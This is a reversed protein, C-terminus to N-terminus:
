QNEVDRTFSLWDHYECSPKFNLSIGKKYEVIREKFFDIYKELDRKSKKYSKNAMITLIEEPYYQKRLEDLNKTKRVTKGKGVPILTPLGREPKQYQSCEIKKYCNNLDRTDNELKVKKDPNIIGLFFKNDKILIITERVKDDSLKGFTARDFMLKVKPTESIKPSVYNRVLNYLPLVSQLVNYHEGLIGQLNLDGGYEPSVNLPKLMNLLKMVTDLYDKIIKVDEEREKLPPTANGKEAIALIDPRMKKENQFIETVKEGKWFDTLRIPVMTEDDRIRCVNWERIEGFSYVVKKDYKERDKKKSFNREAYESAANRFAGRNGTICKSIQDLESSCVFLEDDDNLMSFVRHLSAFLDVEAGLIKVHENQLVFQKLAGCLEADNQFAFFRFVGERDSLIQKFLSALFPLEKPKIEKHAQRYQNVSYNIESIIGNIFDIGTQSLCNNYNGIKLIDALERGCRLEATRESINQLLDPYKSINGKFIKVAFAFKTFNENVARYAASTQQAASSYINKRNEQYEEFYCAFKEFTKVEKM